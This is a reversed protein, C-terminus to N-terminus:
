DAHEAPRGMEAVCFLLFVGVLYYYNCFAQAGLAFVAFMTCSIALLYGLPQALRRFALATLGTAGLGIVGSWWKPPVIGYAEHLPAFVTLATDRFGTRLQFLFGGEWLARPGWLLFPLATLAGILLGLAIRRPRYELLFWHFFLFVLSQKISLVFGYVAAAATRRGQTWLVLFASFGLLILPETWAQEIVFLGRPHWLFCLTLLERFPADARRLLWWLAALVALEGLVSAYRIDGVLFGITQLLLTSPPYMYGVITYGYYEQGDYPDSVPTTYPNKGELLHQASEQGTTFVDIIPAPSVTPVLLRLMVAAAVGAIWAGRRLRQPALGLLYCPIALMMLACTAGFFATDYWPQQGYIAPRVTQGIWLLALLALCCFVRGPTWKWRDQPRWRVIAAGAAVCALASLILTLALPTYRGDQVTVGWAILVYACLFLHAPIRSFQRLARM